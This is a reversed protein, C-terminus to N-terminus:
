VPPPEAPPRRGVPEGRKLARRDKMSQIGLVGVAVLLPAVYLLDIAWHGAHAIPVIM